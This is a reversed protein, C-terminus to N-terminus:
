VAPPQDRRGNEREQDLAQQLRNVAVRLDTWHIAEVPRVLRVVGSQVLLTILERTLHETTM